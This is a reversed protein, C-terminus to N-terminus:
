NDQAKKNKIYCTQKSRIAQEELLDKALSNVTM